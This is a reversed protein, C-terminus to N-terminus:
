EDFVAPKLPRRPMQELDLDNGRFMAAIASGLGMTPKPDDKVADRLISRIEEEMSQGHRAARRRLGTKVEEEINRVILQAM